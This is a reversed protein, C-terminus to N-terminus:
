TDYQILKGNIFEWQRTACDFRIYNCDSNNYIPRRQFTRKVRTQGYKNEEFEEAEHKIKIQEPIFGFTESLLQKADEDSLVHCEELIEMYEEQDLYTGLEICYEWAFEKDLQEQLEAIRSEADKQQKIEKMDALIQIKVAIDDVNLRYQRCFETKDQNSGIYVQEIVKYMGLTPRFGTLSEFEERQM